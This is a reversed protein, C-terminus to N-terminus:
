VWKLRTRCFLIRLLVLKIHLHYKRICMCIYVYSNSHIVDMQTGEEIMKPSAIHVVRHPVECVM